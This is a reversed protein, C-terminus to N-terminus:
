MNGNEDSVLLTSFKSDQSVFDIITHGTNFREIIFQSSSVDQNSKFVTSWLKITKDHSGSALMSEDQSISLSQIYGSHATKINQLLSLDSFRWVKISHIPSFPNGDRGASVLNDNSLQLFCYVGSDHAKEIIRTEADDELDVIKITGVEKESGIAVQDNSLVLVARVASLEINMSKVLRGDKSDFVQLECEKDGQYRSCTVLFDNSLVGVPVCWRGDRLRSITLLVQKEMSYPNWIKIGDESFSVLNGNKLVKLVIMRSSHELFTRVERREELDWMKITWDDSASALWGNPLMVITNVFDTHGSLTFQEQGSATDWIKVTKDWSCSALRGDPLFIVQQIWESHGTM